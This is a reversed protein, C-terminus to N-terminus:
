RTRRAKFIVLLALGAFVVAPIIWDTKTAISNKLGTIDFALNKGAEVKGLQYYNGYPGNDITMQGDPKGLGKIAAGGLQSFLVLDSAPLTIKKKIQMKNSDIDLIYSFAINFAGPAVAMTDYFGKKTFVLAQPEFYSLANFQKYDDPLSIELVKPRNANPINASSVAKELPNRLRIYETILLFDHKLEILIHHTKAYLASNNRSVDYLHLDASINKRDPDLRIAPGTFRTQQHLVAPLAILNNGAKLNKFTVKHSRGITKLLSDIKKGNKYIELQIKDGTVSTGNPTNNRVTVTLDIKQFEPPSQAAFASNLGALLLLCSLQLTTKHKNKM